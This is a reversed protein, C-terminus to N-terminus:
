FWDACLYYAQEYKSVIVKEEEFEEDYYELEEGEIEGEEYVYYDVGEEAEECYQRM